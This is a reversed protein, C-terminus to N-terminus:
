QSPHKHFSKKQLNGTSSIDHASSEFCLLVCLPLKRKSKCDTRSWDARLVGVWGACLEHVRVEPGRGAGTNAPTQAGAGQRTAHPRTGTRRAHRPVQAQLRVRGDRRPRARAARGRGASPGPWAPLLFPAARFLFFGLSVCLFLYLYTSICLYQTLIRSPSVFGFNLVDSFYVCLGHAFVLELAPIWEHHFCCVAGSGHSTGCVLEAQSFARPKPRPEPIFTVWAPLVVNYPDGREDDEDNGFDAYRPPPLHRRRSYDNQAQQQQEQYSQHSRKAPPAGRASQRKRKRGYDGDEDDEEEDEEEDDDEEEEEEEDDEDDEEDDDDEDKGGASRGKHPSMPPPPPLPPLVFGPPLRLRPRRMQGVGAAGDNEGSVAAAATDHNGGLKHRACVILRAAIKLHGTAADAREEEAEPM